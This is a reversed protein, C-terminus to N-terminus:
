EARAGSRGGRHSQGRVASVGGIEGAKRERKKSCVGKFVADIAVSKNDRSAANENQLERQYAMETVAAM